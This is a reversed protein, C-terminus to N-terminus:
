EEQAFYNNFNNSLINAGSSGKARLYFVKIMAPSTQGTAALFEMVMEMDNESVKYESLVSLILVIMQRRLMGGSVNFEKGFLLKSPATLMRAYETVTPPEGRATLIVSVYNGSEERVKEFKSLGFALFIGAQKSVQRM